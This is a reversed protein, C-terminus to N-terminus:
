QMLECGVQIFVGGERGMGVLGGGVISFFVNVLCSSCVVCWVCLVHCIVVVVVCTFEHFTQALNVWM